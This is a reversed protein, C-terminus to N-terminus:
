KQQKRKKLGRISKMWPSDYSILDRGIGVEGHCILEVECTNDLLNSIPLPSSPLLLGNRSSSEHVLDTAERAGIMKESASSWTRGKM